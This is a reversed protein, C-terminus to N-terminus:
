KRLSALAAELQADRANQVEAREQATGADPDADLQRKRQVRAWEEASMAVPTDPRIGAGDFSQGGSRCNYAFTLQLAMDPPVDFISSVSGKGYTKSGVLSAREHDQLAAAMIEAGSATNENVLVVMPFNLYHMGGESKGTRAKGTRGKNTFIPSGKKLFLGTAATVSALSGGGNDRLDLVLARMGRSMLDEVAKQVDAPTQENFCTLRLYGVQRDLLNLEKTSASPLLIEDRVIEVNRASGGSSDTVALAVRTGRTGRILRTADHVEMGDAPKGDIGAIRDGRHLGAKFAPSNEYVSEVTLKGERAQLMAGIGAFRGSMSIKMDAYTEADYLLCHPDLQDMLKRVDPRGSTDLVVPSVYNQTILQVVRDYVAPAVLQPGKDKVVPKVLSSGGPPTTGTLTAGRQLLFVFDGKDLSPDRIKGYQPHQYPNYEPVTSKLFLGLEEGTIYGDPIPEKVRGTLLDLFCQKFVSHDPVPEDARGSTIFQRVPYRISDSITAPMAEARVSLISGSFCSDLMFLVHRSRVRKAQTVLDLLDVSKRRFEAPALGPKPADIMVLYGLEEGTALTETYGHGAFYILLRSDEDQGCAETFDGFVQEFAAKTLNTKQTVEFGSAGLVTAIDSSDKVAGPLPDWQRYSGNGIVLAYSHLYLGIEQGGATKVSVSRLGREAAPQDAWGIRCCAAFMAAMVGVGLVPFPPIRKRM